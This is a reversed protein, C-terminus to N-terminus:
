IGSGLLGEWRWPWGLIESMVVKRNRPNAYVIEILNYLQGLSYQTIMYDFMSPIKGALELNQSMYSIGLTYNGAMFGIIYSLRESETSSSWEEFGLAYYPRGQASGSNALSLALLLVLVWRTDITSCVKKVRAM